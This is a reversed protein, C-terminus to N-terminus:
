WQTFMQKVFPSKCRCSQSSSFFRVGALWLMNQQGPLRAQWDRDTHSQRAAVGAELLYECRLIINLMVCSARPVM